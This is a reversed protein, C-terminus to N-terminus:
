STVGWSKDTLDNITDRIYKVFFGILMIMVLIFGFSYLNLILDLTNYIELSNFRYVMDKLVFFMFWGLFYYWIFANKMLGYFLGRAFTKGMNEHSDIISQNWKDFNIGKTKHSLFLMFGILLIILFIDAVIITMEDDEGSLTTKFWFAFSSPQGNPDGVGNVDHRLNELPTFPYIWQTGNFIMPVNDVVIGNKTFVSINIYSCGACTQSIIYTTNYQANQRQGISETMSSAFTTFLFMFAILLIAQFTKIKTNLM